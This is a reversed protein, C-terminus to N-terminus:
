LFDSKVRPDLEVLEIINGDPDRVMAVHVGPRSENEPVEFPVAKDRLIQCIDSLNKVLSTVYRFGLQAVLGVPGKPPERPVELLKFASNDFRLRYMTGIGTWTPLKQVFALGLVEQYFNLSADINGAVIGIDLAEKTRQMM